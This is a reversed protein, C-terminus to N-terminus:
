IDTSSIDTAAVETSKITCYPALFSLIIATQMVVNLTTVSLMFIRLIVYGGNHRIDNLQAAHKKTIGLTTISFTTIDFTTAGKLAATTAKNVFAHSISGDMVGVGPALTIFSKIATITATNYYTLTNAM